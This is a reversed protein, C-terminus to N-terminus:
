GCGKEMNKQQLPIKIVFNAGFGKGRSCGTLSGGLEQATLLSSHLGYGTGKEKTTFGQTFINMLNKQPIGIGNDSIEIYVAQKNHIGTKIIIQKKDQNAQLEQLAHIANSILNMIITLLKHKDTVITPLKDDFQCEIRIGATIFSHKQLQVVESLFKNLAIPECITTRKVFTQQMSIVAKVHDLNEVLEKSELYLKQREIKLQELSLALYETLHKGKKDQNLFSDLDDKHTKLAGKIKFLRQLTKNDQLSDRILITAVNISNLVNGVNHLIGSAVESMGAERSIKLMKQNLKELSKLTNALEEKKEELSLYTNHLRFAALVRARLEALSFPKALFDDAGSDLGSVTADKGSRATVLIVPIHKLEDDAKLTKVLSIGDMEPMMVDSIIVSPHYKKVAELALRGNEVAIVDFFHSLNESIYARLDDNDDAVIVRHKTNKSGKNIEQRITASVHNSDGSDPIIADNIVPSLIDSQKKIRKSKNNHRAKVVPLLVKFQSGKGPASEVEIEGGMLHVFEKVLALGIGTGEYQRTTSDELQRFREFIATIKDPPIGIGTDAVTLLLHDRSKKLSVDICGNQPTFKLANGILNLVIKEVLKEDLMVSLHKISSEFQLSINKKFAAPQMDDIITHVFDPLQVEQLNVELRNAEAKSFDLLDNVLKYLRYANRSMREIDRRQISQNQDSLMAELPSLILTLPTRLEHSINAIFNNKLQDLEELIKKQKKEEEVSRRASDILFNILMSLKQITEDEDDQSVMFDFNGDVALCLQNAIHEIQSRLKIESDPSVEPM